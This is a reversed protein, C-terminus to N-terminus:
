CAAVLMFPAVKVRSGNCRSVARLLDAAWQREEEKKAAAAEEAKM